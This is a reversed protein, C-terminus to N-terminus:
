NERATSFAASCDLHNLADDVKCQAAPKQHQGHADDQKHPASIREVRQWHFRIRVNGVGVDVDNSLPGSAGRFFDLLLDGNRDFRLHVPDRVERM